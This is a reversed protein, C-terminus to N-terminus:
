DVEWWEVFMDQFPEPLGIAYFAVQIDVGGVCIPDHTDVNVWAFSQGRRAHGSGAGLFCYTPHARRYHPTPRSEKELCCLSWLSSPGKEFNLGVEKAVFLCPHLVVSQRSNGVLSARPLLLVQIGDISTLGLRFRQSGRLVALTFKVSNVDVDLLRRGGAFEHLRQVTKVRIDVKWEEATCESWDGDRMTCVQKNVCWM